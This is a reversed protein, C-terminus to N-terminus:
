PHSAVHHRQLLQKLFRRPVRQGNVWGLEIHKKNAGHFDSGGTTLLKHRHALQTYAQVQQSSHDSHLVEIGVLGLEVLDAVLSDLEAQNRCALQSPHALVCLGGAQKILALAERPPMREKDVYALGNQGLYKDFAEQRTKVYGKRQLIAALHPRGVVTGGAEQRWEDMSVELGLQNLRQIMRPNRNDRADILQRTLELLRPSHPDVCYGLLHLTGPSRYACSIEIGTVFEIGLRKAEAAAEELGGITDHDTLALGVLGQNVAHRVLESPSLTGDSATSHSHLDVFAM